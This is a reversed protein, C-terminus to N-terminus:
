TVVYPSSEAEQRNTLAYLRNRDSGVGITAGKQPPPPTSSNEQSKAGGINRRASPYDRQFYGMQGCSYCVFAGLQCKRPHNRGYTKCQPFTHHQQAVSGQSQTDWARPGHSTQFSQPCRDVPPRPAPASAASQAKDWFKKHQWKNGWNGGQQQSPNQDALRARKAQREKERSEVIKKKKKEKIDKLQYAGLEAGEVQEVHLVRFIKEMEDTFEQPNEEVKTGTFKPPNMRMFHGVKTAESIVPTSGVDESQQAQNAVLQTLMHISQRFEANSIDRQTISPRNVNTWLARPPNTPVPSVGLTPVPESTHARDRTRMGNTPRIEDEQTNINTRHPPM